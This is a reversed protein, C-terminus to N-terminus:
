KGVKILGSPDINVYGVPTNLKKEMQNLYRVIAPYEPSKKIDNWSACPFNFMTPFEYELFTLVVYKPRNIRVASNLDFFSLNAIRRLKKTVTTLEFFKALEEQTEIDLKGLVKNYFGSLETSFKTKDEISWREVGANPLGLEGAVEQKADIFKVLASDNVIPPLGYKARKGNILSALEEWTTEGDMPGSNGAVRIPYTRAVLVVEYELAPSLGAETVWQSAITQRSTVFPFFGYQLDLNHGQTGELIISKGADYADNLLKSTDTLNYGKSSPHSGFTQYEFNRKMKDVIAAMCGEGTSGFREHMGKEAAHHSPLHIGCRPDIFLREKVDMGTAENIEAVEKELIDPAIYAGAGIVLRTGLNIWGVPIQQNKYKKGNYIVSHGANISGTRVAYNINREKCLHGVVCGKAESGYQGGEVIIIPKTKM